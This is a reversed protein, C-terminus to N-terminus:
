FSVARLINKKTPISMPNQQDDTLIVVTGANIHYDRLNLTLQLLSPPFLGVGGVESVTKELM